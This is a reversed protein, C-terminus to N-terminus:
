NFLSWVTCCAVEGGSELLACACADKDQRRQRQKKDKQDDELKQMATTCAKFRRMILKLGLLTGHRAVVKHGYVSCTPGGFYARHACHFGKIPSVRHQYLRIGYLIIEKVNM